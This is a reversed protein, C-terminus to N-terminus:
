TDLLHQGRPLTSLNACLFDLCMLHDRNSPVAKPSLGWINALAHKLHPDGHGGHGQKGEPLSEASEMPSPVAAFAPLAEGHGRNQQQTELKAVSGWAEGRVGGQRWQRIAQKWLIAKLRM